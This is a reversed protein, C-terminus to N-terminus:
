HCAVFRLSLSLGGRDQERGRRGQARGIRSESPLTSTLLIVGKSLVFHLIVAIRDTRGDVAPAAAVLRPDLLIPSVGEVATTSRRTRRSRRPGSGKRKNGVAVQLLPVTRTGLEDYQQAKEDDEKSVPSGPVSRLRRRDRDGGTTSRYSGLPRPRSSYAPVRSRSSRPRREGWGLM